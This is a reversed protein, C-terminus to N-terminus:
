VFFEDTRRAEQMGFTQVVNVDPGSNMPESRESEHQNRLNGTFGSNDYIHEDTGPSNNCIHEGTGPTGRDRPERKTDAVNCDEDDSSLQSIRRPNAGVESDVISDIKGDRQSQSNDSVLSINGKRTTCSSNSAPCQELTGNGSDTSELTGSRENPIELDTLSTRRENSLNTNDSSEPKSTVVDIPRAYGSSTESIVSDRSNDPLLELYTHTSARKKNEKGDSNTEPMANDRSNDPLIELYTHTSARKEDQKDGSNAESIVSERGSDPLVELYTHTSARKVDECDTLDKCTGISSASNEKEFVEGTYDSDTGLSSHYQSTALGPIQSIRVSAYPSAPDSDPELLGSSVGSDRVDSERNSYRQDSGNLSGTKSREDEIVSAYPHDEDGDDLPTDSDIPSGSLTSARGNSEHSSPPKEDSSVSAYSPEIINNNEGLQSSHVSEYSHYIDVDFATWNIDKLLLLTDLSKSHRHCLNTRRFPSVDITASKDRFDVSNNRPPPVPPQSISGSIIKNFTGGFSSSKVLVPHARIPPSKHHSPYTKGRGKSSPLAEFFRLRDLSKSFRKSPAPPLPRNQFINSVSKTRSGLTLSRMEREFKERSPSGSIMPKLSGSKGLNQSSLLVAPM